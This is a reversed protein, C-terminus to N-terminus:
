FLFFFKNLFFCFFFVEINVVWQFFFNCKAPIRELCCRLNNWLCLAAFSKKKKKQWLASPIHLGKCCIVSVKRVWLSSKLDWWGTLITSCRRKPTLVSANTTWYCLWLTLSVCRGDWQCCQSTNESLCQMLVGPGFVATGELQM